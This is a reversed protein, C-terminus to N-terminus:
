ENPYRFCTTLHDNVMGVAQMFAYCITPGVFNFGAKKLAKSMAKSEDTEAPVDSMSAFANVRPEGGVFGWLYNSFNVGERELKVFADANRFISEIKLRNRVIGANGMQKEIFALRENDTIASLKHPNFGLFAEEYAKQKRLITIWSLGAQQGDLCLKAFLQQSDYEPVGWVTDHYHVYDEADGCWPCREKGDNIAAM